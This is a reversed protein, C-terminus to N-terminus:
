HAPCRGGERPDAVGGGPCTVTCHDTGTCVSRAWEKGTADWDIQACASLLLPMALLWWRIM